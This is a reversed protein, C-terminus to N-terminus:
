PQASYEFVRTVRIRFQV